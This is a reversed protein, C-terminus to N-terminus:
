YPYGTGFRIPLFEVALIIVERPGTYPHDVHHPSLSPTYYRTMITM